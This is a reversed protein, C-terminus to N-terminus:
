ENLNRKESLAFGNRDQIDNEEHTMVGLTLTDLHGNIKETLGSM